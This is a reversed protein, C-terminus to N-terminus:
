VRSASFALVALKLVQERTKEQVGAEKNLVRSVTKISVGAQEAVDVITPSSGVKSAVSGM